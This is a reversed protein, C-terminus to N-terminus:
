LTKLGVAAIHLACELYAGRRVAAEVQSFYAEVDEPTCRGDLVAAARSGRGDRFETRWAAVDPPDTTVHVHPTVAVDRLGAARLLGLLERGVDPNTWASVRRRLADDVGAAFQAAPEICLVRGGPQTVRAMEAVIQAPQPAHILVRSCLAAAFAGNPLALSRGDMQRYSIARALAGLDAASTERAAQELALRSPDVATIRVAGGTARAIERAVAGTGCGVELVTQGPRLDLLRLLERTRQTHLPSGCTQSISAILHAGLPHNDLRGMADIWAAASGEMESM